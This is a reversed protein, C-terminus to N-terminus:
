LVFVGEGVGCGVFGGKDVVAAGVLVFVAVEIGITNCALMVGVGGGGVLVGAGVADGVGHM